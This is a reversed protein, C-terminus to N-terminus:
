VIDWSRSVRVVRGRLPWLGMEAAKQMKRVVPQAGTSVYRRVVEGAVQVEMIVYPGFDGEYEGVGYITITKEELEKIPVPRTADWGLSELEPIDSINIVKEEAM